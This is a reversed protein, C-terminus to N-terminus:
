PKELLWTHIHANSWLFRQAGFLQHKWITSPFVGSLGKSQLSILGTLGIPFWGQSNMPLVSASAGTNQGGSAFLRSMPSSRSAPFCQLHFLAVSSLITPHCWWNLPCSGSFVRPSVSPCSLRPQQLGHLWLSDSVVHCCLLLLYLFSQPIFIM